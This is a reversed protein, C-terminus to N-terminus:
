PERQSKHNCYEEDNVWIDIIQNCKECYHIILEDNEIESIEPKERNGDEYPEEDANFYGTGSMTLLKTNGCKYCKSGGTVVENPMVHHPKLHSANLIEELENAFAKKLEKAPPEKEFMFWVSWKNIFQKKLEEM